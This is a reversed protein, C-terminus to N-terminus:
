HTVLWVVTLKALLSQPYLSLERIVVSNGHGSCLGMGSYYMIIILSRTYRCKAFLSVKKIGRRNDNYAFNVTSMKTSHTIIINYLLVCLMSHRQNVVAFSFIYTEDECGEAKPDPDAGSIRKCVDPVRPTNKGVRDM